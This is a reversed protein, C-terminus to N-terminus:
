AISASVARVVERPECAYLDAGSFPNVELLRLGDDSECVDMVYVAEPPTLRSAVDRAFSWAESGPAAPIAVRQTAQYESGAVVAKSVVVFRWERGVHRAPAVIIPLDLRDYYFGHDLSKLNVDAKSLVRGSFEKLPGDPRVFVAGEAGLLQIVSDPSDVFETVTTAHWTENLLWTQAGPYWATCCFKATDCFVGPKWLGRQRIADANSLSGRFVVGRNPLAPLVDQELWEDRWPLCEHGLEQVAAKFAAHTGPFAQKELVWVVSADTSVCSCYRLGKCRSLRRGFVASMSM